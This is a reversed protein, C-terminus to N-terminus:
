PLEAFPSHRACAHHRRGVQKALESLITAPLQQPDGVLVVSCLFFATLTSPLITHLTATLWLCPPRAGTCCLLLSLQPPQLRAVM